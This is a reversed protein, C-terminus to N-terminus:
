KLKMDKLIKEADPYATMAQIEDELFDLRALENEVDVLSDYIQPATWGNYSPTYSFSYSIGKFKDSM